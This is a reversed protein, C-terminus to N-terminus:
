RCEVAAELQALVQKLDDRLAAHKERQMAQQLYSIAHPDDMAALGLAAGDRVRASASFLNRELLELRAHYTAVHDMRGLWRLAEAAADENVTESTLCHAVANVATEGRREILTILANSFESEMGDEFHQDLAAAFLAAAKQRIEEGRDGQITPGKAPREDQFNEWSPLMASNLSTVPWPPLTAPTEVIVHSM